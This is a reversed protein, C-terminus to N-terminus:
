YLIVINKGYYLKVNTVIKIFTYSWACSFNVKITLTKDGVENSYWLCVNEAVLKLNISSVNININYKPTTAVIIDYTSVGIEIFIAIDQCNVIYIIKSEIVYFCKM